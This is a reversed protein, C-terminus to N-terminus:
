AGATKPPAAMAFYLFQPLEDSVTVVVTHGEVTAWSAPALKAAVLEDLTGYVAEGDKEKVKADKFQEEARALKELVRVVANEADTLDADGARARAASSVVLAAALLVSCIRM